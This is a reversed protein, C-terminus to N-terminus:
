VVLCAIHVAKDSGGAVVHRGDPHFVASSFRSNIRELSFEEVGSGMDWIKVKHDWGASLVRLGDPSFCVCYVSFTHGKFLRTEEGTGANWLRVTNDRSGSLVQSGDANSCVSMVGDEHGEFVMKESGNGADWIRVAKDDGGALVFLGDGTIDVDHLAGRKREGFIGAMQGKELDMVGAMGIDSSFAARKGIADVALGTIGGQSRQDSKWAAKGTELSWLRIQGFRDGSLIRGGGCFCVDGVGAEHGKFIKVPSGTEFDWLRVTGDESGSLVYKGDDSIDVSTVEGTHGSLIRSGSGAGNPGPRQAGLREIEDDLMLRNKIKGIVQREEDPVNADSGMCSLLWEELRPYIRLKDDDSLADACDDFVEVFRSSELAVFEDLSKTMGEAGFQNVLWEQEEPKLQEDAAVAWFACAYLFKRGQLSMDKAVFPAKRM